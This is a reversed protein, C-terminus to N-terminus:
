VSRCPPGTVSRAEAKRMPWPMSTCRNESSGARFNTSPPTTMEPTSMRPRSPWLSASATAWAMASATSPAAPSPSRPCCAGSVSGIQDPASLMPMKAQTTSSAPSAPHDGTLASQGTTASCGLSAGNTASIASRRLATNCAGTLTFAVRASPRPASPRASPMAQVAETRRTDRASSTERSAVGPTVPHARCGSTAPTPATTRTTSSPGTPSPGTPGRALAAGRPGALRSWGPQATPGTGRSPVHGTPCATAPPTGAAIPISRRLPVGLTCPEPAFLHFSALGNTLQQAGVPTRHARQQHGFAHILGGDEILDLAQRGFTSDLDGVNGAPADIQHCPGLRGLPHHGQGARHRLRREVLQAFRGTTPALRKQQHEVPDGVRVVQACEQAAGLAGPHGPDDQGPVAGGM